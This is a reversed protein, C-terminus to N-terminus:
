YVIRRCSCHEDDFWPSRRLVLTGFRKLVCRVVGHWGSRKGGTASLIVNLQVQVSSVGCRLPYFHIVHRRTCSWFEGETHLNSKYFRVRYPQVSLMSMPRAASCHCLRQPVYKSNYNVTICEKMPLVPLMNIHYGMGYILRCM